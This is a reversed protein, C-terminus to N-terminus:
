CIPERVRLDILSSLKLFQTCSLCLPLWQILALCMVTMAKVVPSYIHVFMFQFSMMWFLLKKDVANWFWVKAYLKAIYEMEATLFMWATLAHSKDRAYRYKFGPYKEKLEQLFNLVNAGNDENIRDKVWELSGTWPKTIRQHWRKQKTWLIVQNGGTWTM